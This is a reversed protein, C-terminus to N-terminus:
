NVTDTFALDGSPLIIINTTLQIDNSATGPNPLNLRALTALGEDGSFGQLGNGAVITTTGVTNNPADLQIIQHSLANTFFVKGASDVILDRPRNVKQTSTAIVSFTTGSPSNQRIIRNNRTDTIHLRDSADFAIGTPGFLTQMTGDGYRTSVVGTMADI